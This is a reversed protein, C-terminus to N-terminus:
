QALKVKAPGLGLGGGVPEMSNAVTTTTAVETSGQPHTVILVAGSPVSWSVALSTNATVNFSPLSGVYGM